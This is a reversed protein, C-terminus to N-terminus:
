SKVRNEVMVYKKECLLMLGGRLTLFVIFACWLGHNGWLPQLIFYLLFFAGTAVFMINRMGKSATAGIYIGDYIFAAFGTFPVLVTWVIYRMALDIVTEKNTLIGM